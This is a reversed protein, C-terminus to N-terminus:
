GHAPVLTEPPKDIPQTFSSPEVPFGFVLRTTGGGFERHLFGAGTRVRTGPGISYAKGQADAVQLTGSVIFAVAAFDHWHLEESEPSVRDAAFAHWGMAEVEAIAEAETTFHHETIENSGFPFPEQRM